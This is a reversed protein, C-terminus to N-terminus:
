SSFALPSPRVLHPKTAFREAFDRQYANWIGLSQWEATM